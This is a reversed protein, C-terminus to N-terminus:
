LPIRSGNRITIYIQMPIFPPQSFISDITNYILIYNCLFGGDEAQESQTISHYQEYITPYAIKKIAHLLADYLIHSVDCELVVRKGDNSKGAIFYM